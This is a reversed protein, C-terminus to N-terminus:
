GLLLPLDVGRYGRHEVFAWLNKILKGGVRAAFVVDSLYLERRREEGWCCGRGDDDRLTFMM